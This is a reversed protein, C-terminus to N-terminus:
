LGYGQAVGVAVAGGFLVGVVGAAIVTARLGRSERRYADLEARLRDIEDQCIARDVARGQWCIGADTRWWELMQSDEYLEVARVDSLLQGRCDPRPGGPIYATARPCEDPAPELGPFEPPLREPIPSFMSAPPPAKCALLLAIM